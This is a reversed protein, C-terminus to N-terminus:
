LIDEALATGRNERNIVTQRGGIAAHRAERDEVM